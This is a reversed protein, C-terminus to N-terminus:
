QQLFRTNCEQHKSLGMSHRISNIFMTLISKVKLAPQNSCMCRMKSQVMLFTSKIDIQYLKFGHDTAYAFLMHISEIRVRPAFTEDFNFGKLQSYGKAVLQEKNRTVVVHEDQKNRFVWKTGAVNKRPREVLYWVENLKFNNLEEEMAVVSDSDSLVDEVKFPEFSSVFL